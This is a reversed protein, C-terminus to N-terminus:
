TDCSYDETLYGPRKGCCSVSNTLIPNTETDPLYTTVVLTLGVSKTSSSDSTWYWDKLDVSVNSKPLNGFDM